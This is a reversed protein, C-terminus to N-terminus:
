LKWGLAELKKETNQIRLHHLWEQIVDDELGSSRVIECGKLFPDPPSSATRPSM